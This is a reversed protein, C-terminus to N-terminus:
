GKYTAKFARIKLEIAVLRKLKRHYFLLDLKFDKDDIIMRKQHELFAFGRGLELLFDEIQRLIAQELDKEQYTDKLGLFDLVCPSRFVLNPSLKDNEALNALELKALEEPKQSIATREFLM